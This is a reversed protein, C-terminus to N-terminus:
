AAAPPITVDLGLARLHARIKRNHDISGPHWDPGLDAFRGPAKTHTYGDCLV